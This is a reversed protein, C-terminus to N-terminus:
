RFLDAIQNAADRKLKESVHSYIDTTSIDEHRLLEQIEKLSVGRELLRTAFTHRLSHVTIGRSIGASDRLREFVRSFNRPHIPTGVGTCFVPADKDMHGEFMMRERHAKLAEVAPKILPVAGKSKETKPPHYAAKGKVWVLSSEVSLCANAFDINRWKLGLLEGRRLGTAMLVIFAPYLRETRAANLFKAQEKETMSRAKSRERRPLTTAKSVNSLVLKNKVAQELAGHIVTHVYRVSRPSLGEETKAAYLKQLHDPRLAQLPLQGVAPVIHKDIQVRYSDLTTQRLDLKKYDNLWSSLWTAVTIRKTEIYLGQDLKQLLDAKLLEADSKRGAVTRVIRHRKGTAPHKGAEIIVKYKKGKILEVIRGTM